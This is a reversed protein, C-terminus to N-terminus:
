EGTTPPVGLWFGLSFDDAPQRTIYGSHTSSTVIQLNARSGALYDYHCAIGSPSVAYYLCSNIRNYTLNYFPIQVEAGGRYVTNQNIQSIHAVDEAVAGPLTYGQYYGASWDKYLYRTTVPLLTDSQTTDQFYRIRIGGRSFLYCNSILSLNDPSVYDELGYVTGAANQNIGLAYPDFLISNHTLTNPTLYIDARKLYSLLSVCKEGICTRAEIHSHSDDNSNGINDSLIANENEHATFGMQPATPFIPTMTHTRPIAVEFDGAGAVEVLFTITSSVSSPAVLPNVVYVQLNGITSSSGGSIRYPIISTYPILLTIENGM